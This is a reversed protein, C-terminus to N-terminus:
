EQPQLRLPRLLEVAQPRERLLWLAVSCALLLAGTSLGLV